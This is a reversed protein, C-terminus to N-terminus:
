NVGVWAFVEDRRIGCSPVRVKVTESPCPDKAALDLAKLIEFARLFMQRKQAALALVVVAESAWLSKAAQGLAKVTVFAWLFVTRERSAPALVEVAQLAWLLM